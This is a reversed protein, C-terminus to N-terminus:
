EIWLRLRGFEDVVQFRHARAEDALLKGFMNLLIIPFRDKPIPGIAKQSDTPSWKRHELLVNFILRFHFLGSM